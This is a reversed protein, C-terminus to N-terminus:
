ALNPAHQHCNKLCNQLEKATHAVLTEDNAFILDCIHDKKGKAKSESQLTLNTDTLNQM